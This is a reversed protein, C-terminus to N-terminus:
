STTWGRPISRAPFRTVRATSLRSSSSMDANRSLENEPILGMSLLLTDCTYREETGPIM